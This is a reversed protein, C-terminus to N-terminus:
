KKLQSERGQEVLGRYFPLALLGLLGWFLTTLFGTLSIWVATVEAVGALDGLLIVFLKERVGVGGLSIPMASIVDVAPMLAFVQSLDMKVGYAQMSCYFVSFYGLMMLCSLGSALLTQPWRAVFLYYLELLQLMKDRFPAWKPVRNTVGTGSAILTLSLLFVVCGMYIFVFHVLGAAMPSSTLWDYHWLIFTCSVLVLAGLGSMRDLVVSLLAAGHPRGQGILALVKVADGGVSGVLFTNFFLGLYFLRVTQWFPLHIGLVELFVRWRIAGLFTEVGAVAIAAAVWRLDANQLVTLTNERVEPNSFIWVVLGITVLTQCIFLIKKRM